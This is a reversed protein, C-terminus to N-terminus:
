GGRKKAWPNVLDPEDVPRSPPAPAPEPAAKPASRVRKTRRKKKPPSEKAEEPAALSAELKAIATRASIVTEEEYRGDEGEELIRGYTSMAERAEAENGGQEYLREHIKAINLLLDGRMPQPGGESMHQELLRNMTELAGEYDGAGYKWFAEEYLQSTGVKPAQVPAPVEAVSEVVPEEGGTLALTAGVAAVLVVSAAAVYAGVRRPQMAHQLQVLLAEMSTYRRAPETELGRKVVKRVASPVKSRKPPTRLRGELVNFALAAASDGVFARQGFLGEYLSACFSFQDSRADAQEGEIQEPSMYAPTGLRVGSRTVTMGLPDEEKPAGEPSEDEIEESAELEDAKRALGFDVVVIRGDDAVIVNAPKFDRHVLGSAHAAVLGRGALIYAGLVARWPRDEEHLWERMTKGPVYEMAIFAQQEHEGVDHITVVNPHNVLALARAERIFRARMAESVDTNRIVKIALRRGLEPDEALYVAGMAGSGLPEIVEYRGVRLKEPAAGFLRRHVEQRALDLGLNQDSETQTTVASGGENPTKQVEEAKADL